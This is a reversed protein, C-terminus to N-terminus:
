SRPEDPLPSNVDFYEALEDESLGTQEMIRRWTRELREFAEAKREERSPNTPFYFGIPQGHREVALVEDGGLLESAHDRFERVGVRRM